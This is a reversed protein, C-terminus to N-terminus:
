EAAERAPQDLKRHLIAQATDLAGANPVGKGGRNRYYTLKKIALSVDGNAERLLGEAIQRGSKTFLGEQKLPHKVQSPKVWKKATEEHLADPLDGHFYALLVLRGEGRLSAKVESKTGKDDDKSTKKGAWDEDIADVYEKTIVLPFEPLKFQKLWKAGKAAAKTANYSLTVHPSYDPFDTTAGLKRAADFREQLLPSRYTLVLTTKDPGFLELRYGRNKKPTVTTPEDYTAPKFDPVTKRSYVITTHFDKPDIPEKLGMAATLYNLYETLNEITDDDFEVAAYTGGGEDVKPEKSEKKPAATCEATFQSFVDHITEDM